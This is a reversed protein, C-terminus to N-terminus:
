VTDVGIAVLSEPEPLPKIRRYFTGIGPTHVQGEGHSSFSSMIREFNINPVRWNPNFSPIASELFEFGWVEASRIRAARDPGVGSRIGKAGVRWFVAFLSTQLFPPGVV